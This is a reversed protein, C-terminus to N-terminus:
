KSKLKIGESDRGLLQLNDVAQIATSTNGALYKLQPDNYYIKTKETLLFEGQIIEIKKPQPIISINQAVAFLSHCVLPINTSIYIYNMIKFPDSRDSKYYKASSSHSIGISKSQM